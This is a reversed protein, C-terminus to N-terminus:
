RSTGPAAAPATQSGHSPLSIDARLSRQASVCCEGPPLFNPRLCERPARLSWPAPFCASTPGATPPSFSSNWARTPETSWIPTPSTSNSPGLFYLLRPDQAGRLLSTLSSPANSFPPPHDEPHELYLIQHHLATFSPLLIDEGPGSNTKIKFETHTSWRLEGSIMWSAGGPHQVRAQGTEMGQASHERSVEPTSWM